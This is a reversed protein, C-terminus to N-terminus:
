KESEEHEPTRPKFTRIVERIHIFFPADGEVTDAELAGSYFANALAADAVDRITDFSFLVAEIEVIWDKETMVLNADPWGLMGQIADLRKRDLELEAIYSQLENSAAVLTRPGIEMRESSRVARQYDLMLKPPSEMM